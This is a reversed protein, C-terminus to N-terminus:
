WEEFSERKDDVIGGGMGHVVVEYRERSEVDGPLCRTNEETAENREKQNSPERRM